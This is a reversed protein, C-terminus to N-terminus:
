YGKQVGMSLNIMDSNAISSLISSNLYSGAVDKLLDTVLMLFEYYSSKGVRHLKGNM